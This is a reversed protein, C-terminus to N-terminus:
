KASSHSMGRDHLHTPLYGNADYTVRDVCVQRSGRYPGDGSQGEWRHYAVFWEGTRPDRFFATDPVRAFPTVPCCSATTNGPVPPRPATAYHVSYSADRWGGYSYTLCRGAHHHM